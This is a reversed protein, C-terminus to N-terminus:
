GYAIAWGPLDLIGGGNDDRTFGYRAAPATERLALLEWRGLRLSVFPLGTPANVTARHGYDLEFFFRM